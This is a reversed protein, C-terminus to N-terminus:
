RTAERGGDQTEGLKQFLFIDVGLEWGIGVILVNGFLAELRTKRTLRSPQRAGQRQEPSRPNKALDQLLDIGRGGRVVERELLHKCESGLQVLPILLQGLMKGESELL